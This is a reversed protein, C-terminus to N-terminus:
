PVVAGEDAAATDGPAPEAGPQPGLWRDWQVRGASFIPGDVCARANRM